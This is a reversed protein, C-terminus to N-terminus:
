RRGLGDVLGLIAKQSANAVSVGQMALQERARSAEIRAQDRGIDADVAAGVGVTYADITARAMDRTAEFTKAKNAFYASNQAAAAAAFDCMDLLNAFPGPPAPLPLVGGLGLGTRSADVARFEESGGSSDRIFQSPVPSGVSAGANFAVDYQATSAVGVGCVIDISFPANGDWDFSLTGSGPVLGSTGVIAGRYAISFMDPVAAHNFAVEIVGPTGAPLGAITATQVQFPSTANFTVSGIPTPAV